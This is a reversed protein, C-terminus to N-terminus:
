QGKEPPSFEDGNESLSGVIWRHTLMSWYSTGGESTPKLGRHTGIETGPKYNEKTLEYLEKILEDGLDPREVDINELVNKISSLALRARQTAVNEIKQIVRDPWWMMVNFFDTSTPYTQELNKPERTKFIHDKRYKPVDVQDIFDISYLVEDLAEKLDMNFQSLRM